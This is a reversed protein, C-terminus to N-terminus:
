EEGTIEKVFIGALFGLAEFEMFATSSSDFLLRYDSKFEADAKHWILRLPVKPFPHFLWSYGGSPDPGEFCGGIREAQEALAASDSDFRRAMARAVDQLVLSNQAEMLGCLRGLPRFDYAPEGRGPSLAYHAVLSLHNIGASGGDDPWVGKGDVLYLRGFFYIKVRGVADTTLGLSPANGTLDFNALKGVQWQYIQEYGNIKTM